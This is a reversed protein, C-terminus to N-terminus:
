RNQTFLQEFNVVSFDKSLYSAKLEEVFCRKFYECSSKFHVVTRMMAFQLLSKSLFDNRFRYSDPIAIKFFRQLELDSRKEWMFGDKMKPNKAIKDWMSNYLTRM